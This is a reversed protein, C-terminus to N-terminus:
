SRRPESANQYFSIDDTMIYRLNVLEPQRLKDIFGLFAM